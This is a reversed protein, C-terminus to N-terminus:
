CMKTVKGLAVKSYYKLIKFSEGVEMPVNDDLKIKVKINKDGPNGVKIDDLLTITGNSSSPNFWMNFKSNDTISNGKNGNSEDLVDITAEFYNTAVISNPKAIAQGHAIKDRTVGKLLIGASDGMKASKQKAKFMEIEVVETNIVNESYGVVQLKDGLKVTGRAVRGTVYTGVDPVGYFDEVYFLFAGNEDYTLNTGPAIGDPMDEETPSYNNDVNNDNNINKNKMLFNCSLFGIVVVIVLAVVIIIGNNGKKNTDNNMQGNYGNNFNGNINSNMNTNQNNNMFNNNMGVNNQQVFNNNMMQNNMQQNNNMSFNYGCKVCSTSGDLVNGKCRPCIM